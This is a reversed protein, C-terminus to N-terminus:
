GRSCVAGRFIMWSLPEVGVIHFYFMRMIQRDFDNHYYVDGRRPNDANNNVRVKEYGYVVRKFYLLHLLSFSVGCGTM